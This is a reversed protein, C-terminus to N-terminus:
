EGLPLTIRMTTGQSPASEATITGGHAEVLHRAIALGLGMGGSDTSKYFREFVHPLEDAPIGPGTDQVELLAQKEAQWYRVCIMSSAPTYRLANAVLNSLVQRFRVPDLDLWPLDDATEVTLSVGAADVQAKFSALTDRILMSLDTPEKKLQLAGSEALALTRLDEVLRALINTEELLSRLNAEDAPYVGDLMGELNGQVVTLPTRLEHTVDALLERRQEDTIHLRSAMNNFARALSRVERPGKEQVRVSYDGQGVRDAAKLLDDLPVVLRRLGMGGLVLVLIVFPIFGVEIPVQWQGPAFPFNVLGLGRALLAIIGVLVVLGLLNFLGFLCGVRRFFPYHRM